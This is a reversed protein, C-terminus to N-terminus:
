TRHHGNSTGEAAHRRYCCEGGHETAMCCTPYGDIHPGPNQNVILCQPTHYNWIERHGPNLTHASAPVKCDGEPWGCRRGPVPVPGAAPPPVTTLNRRATM